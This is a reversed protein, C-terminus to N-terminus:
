RDRRREMRPARWPDHTGELTRFVESLRAWNSLFIGICPDGLNPVVQFIIKKRFVLCRSLAYDPHSLPVCHYFLIEVATTGVADEHSADGPFLAVVQECLDM